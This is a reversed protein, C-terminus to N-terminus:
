KKNIIKLNDVYFVTQKTANSVFGVWTLKDFKESGNMLGEFTVPSKGPLTVTLDWKGKNKKGLPSAIEFHTWKGQPIDMLTKDPVRLKNNQIWMVPGTRYPNVSWNRWEHNFNVGEEIRLDFSCTTMGEIHNIKYVCHPNFTNQM